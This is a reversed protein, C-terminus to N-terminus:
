KLILLLVAIGTFVIGTALKIRGAQKRCDFLEEAEITIADRMKM